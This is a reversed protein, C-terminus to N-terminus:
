NCAVPKRSLGKYVPVLRAVADKSVGAKGPEYSKLWYELQERALAKIKANLVGGKLSAIRESANRQTAYEGLSIANALEGQTILQLNQVGRARLDKLKREAEEATRAPPLYVIYKQGLHKVQDYSVLKANLASLKGYAATREAVSAFPGISWCSTPAPKTPKHAPRAAAAASPPASAASTPKGGNASLLRNASLQENVLMLPEVGEMASIRSSQTRQIRVQDYLGWGLFAIDFM